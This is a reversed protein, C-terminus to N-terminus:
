GMLNKVDDPSLGSTLLDALIEKEKQEQAYEPSMQHRILLGAAVDDREQYSPPSQGMIRSIAGLLGAIANNDGGNSDIRQGTEKELREILDSAVSM